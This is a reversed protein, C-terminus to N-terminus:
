ELNPTLSQSASHAFTCTPDAHMLNRNPNALTNNDQFNSYGSSESLDPPPVLEFETFSPGNLAPASDSYNEPTDAKEQRRKRPRGM